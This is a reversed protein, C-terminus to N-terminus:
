FEDDDLDAEIDCVAKCNPCMFQPYSKVILPRICRYHWAHSCSAVFVAQCPKIPGLCIVCPTLESEKRTLTLEKLREHAEKSFKAGRRRWSNNLEIKVKVCRYIEESGGRYDMGLQLIDSDGLIYEGSEVNAQSLRVHNLFTGSSSKVDRIYWEGDDDVTLEAHQRSVVKSKFVVPASSGQPATAASKCKETYRGVPITMGPKIRRIIPGFFMYPNSSSHDIFPTLRISYYGEEDRKPASEEVPGVDQVDAHVAAEHVGADQVSRADEGIVIGSDEPSCSDSSIPASDVTDVLEVQEDVVRALPTCVHDSSGNVRDALNAMTPSNAMSYNYIQPNFRNHRVEMSSSSETATSNTRSARPAPLATSVDPSQSQPSRPTPPLAASETIYHGGENEEDDDDQLLLSEPTEAPTAASTEASADAGDPSTEAVNQQMLSEGSTPEGQLHPEVAAVEQSSTGSRPRTSGRSLNEESNGRRTNSVSTSSLGRVSNVLSSLVSSMSSKRRPQGPGPPPTLDRGASALSETEAKRHNFLSPLTHYVQWNIEPKYRLYSFKHKM